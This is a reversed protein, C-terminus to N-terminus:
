RREYTGTLQGRAIVHGSLTSLLTRVTSVDQPIPTDSALLHFRYRHPGHGRIPRPGSYGDKALRTPIIWVGAEGRRLAGAAIGTATPPLVAATHMLPTRLPVDIDDLLLVLQATTTPVQRWKLTPSINDGVGPGAAASPISTGDSFDPSTLIIEQGATLEARALPSRLPDARLPRLVRGVLTTM